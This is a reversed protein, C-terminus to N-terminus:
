LNNEDENLELEGSTNLIEYKTFSEDSVLSDGYLVDQGRTIKLDTNTHIIKKKQDWTLRETDLRENKEFNRIVVNREAQMLKKQDYGVGYDATLQSKVNGESGYFVVKFGEPFEFYAQDGSYKYMLPSTLIAKVDGSDSRIYEINIATLEPLTDLEGYVAVTKLDPECAFLMALSLVAAISRIIQKFLKIHQGKM